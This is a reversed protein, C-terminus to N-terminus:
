KKVVEDAPGCTSRRALARPRAHGREDGRRPPRPGRAHGHEQMVSWETECSADFTNQIWFVAGGADRLAGALRNIPPCSTSPWRAGPM